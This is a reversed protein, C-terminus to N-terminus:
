EESVKEKRNRINMQTLSQTFGLATTRNSPNPIISFCNLLGWRTDLGRDEPKYWLAEVLLWLSVPQM